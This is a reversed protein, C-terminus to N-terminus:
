QVALAWDMRRYAWVSIWTCKLVCVAATSSAHNTHTRHGREWSSSSGTSPSWLGWRSVPPRHGQPHVWPTEPFLLNQTKYLIESTLSANHYNCPAALLELSIWSSPTDKALLSSLFPKFMVDAATKITPSIAPLPTSARGFAITLEPVCLRTKHILTKDYTQETIKWLYISTFYNRGVNSESFIMPIEHSERISRLTRQAYVFWQNKHKRNSVLHRVSHRALTMAIVKLSLNRKILGSLFATFCNDRNEKSDCSKRSSKKTNAKHKIFTEYQKTFMCFLTKYLHGVSFQWRLNQGNVM